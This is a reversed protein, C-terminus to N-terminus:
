GGIINQPPPPPVLPFYKEHLLPIELKFWLLNSPPSHYRRGWPLRIQLPNLSTLIVIYSSKNTPHLPHNTGLNVTMSLRKGLWHPPPQNVTSPVTPSTSYENPYSMIQYHIYFDWPQTYFGKDIENDIVFKKDHYSDSCIFMIIVKSGMPIRCYWSTKHNTEKKSCISADKKTLIYFGIPLNKILVTCERRELPPSFEASYIPTTKLNGNEWIYHIPYM